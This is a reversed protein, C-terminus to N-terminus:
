TARPWAPRGPRAARWPTWSMSAPKPPSGEVTFEVATEGPEGTGRWTVAARRPPDLETFTGEARYGQNWRVEYRGGPRVETWAQDSFWERLESARTVAEFALDPTTDIVVRHKIERVDTM